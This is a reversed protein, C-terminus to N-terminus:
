ILKHLILVSLRLVFFFWDLFFAVENYLLVVGALSVGEVGVVWIAGLGVWVITFHGGM